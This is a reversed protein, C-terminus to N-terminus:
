NETQTVENSEVFYQKAAFRSHKYGIGRWYIRTAENLAYFPVGDWDKGYYTDLFDQADALKKFVGVVEKYGRGSTIYVIANRGDADIRLNAKFTIYPTKQNEITYGARLYQQRVVEAMILKYVPDPSVAFIDLDGSYSAIVGLKSPLDLTHKMYVSKTDKNVIAWVASKPLSNIYKFLSSIDTSM